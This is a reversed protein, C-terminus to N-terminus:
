APVAVDAPNSDVRHLAGGPDQVPLMGFADLSADSRLVGLIGRLQALAERGTEEVARIAAIAAAPDEALMSRASEAEVVMAVISGAVQGHLERAIDTRATIVATQARRDRETALRANTESLAVVLQRERRWVRGVSWVVIGMVVAGLVGGIAAHQIWGALAAGCTWLTLGTVARGLPAWRAVTYLPVALVFAGTVTSRSTSTLGSSVTLALLGAVAVFTLPARRRWLAAAALAAVVVANLAWSGSRASSTAAEVEMAILWMCAVAVDWHQAVHSRVPQLRQTSILDDTSEQREDALPIWVRVAYGGASRPGHELTGGFAGLRERMGTLGHGGQDTATGRESTGTNLVEINVGTADVRVSVSATAGVGAHKVVNTLAEQVVRLALLDIAPPLTELPPVDLHTAV